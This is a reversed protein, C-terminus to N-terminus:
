GKGAPALCGWGVGCAAEPGLRARGLGVPSGLSIIASGHERDPQLRILKYNKIIKIILNV